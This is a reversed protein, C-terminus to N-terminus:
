LLTNLMSSVLEKRLDNGAKKYADLGAKVHDLQIGKVGQRGGEVVV